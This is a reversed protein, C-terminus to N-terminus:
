VVSHKMIDYTRLVVNIKLLLTFATHSHCASCNRRRARPGPVYGFLETHNQSIFYIDSHCIKCIHKSKRIKCLILKNMFIIIKISKNKQIQYVNRFQIFSVCYLMIKYNIFTERPFVKNIIHSEHDVTCM